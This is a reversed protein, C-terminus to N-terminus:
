KQYEPARASRVSRWLAPIDIKLINTLSTHREIRRVAAVKFM